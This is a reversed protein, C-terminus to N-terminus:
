RILTEQTQPNMFAVKRAGARLDSSLLMVDVGRLIDNTYIFGNYWYSSWANGGEPRYFGVEAAAASAGLLLRDVDVITTGGTYSASVLVKRGNTLPIFNFYHITCTGQEVRPIKYSGRALGTGVDLFWVRGRNDDPDTCRAQSGGGAEDGFAVLSGDWSFAASHWIEASAHDFRWLFEPAAPNSIDWMQSESLCSAAARRIELFVTIDHCARVGGVFSVSFLETNPDLQYRGVTAAIPDTLPVTVISIFGHPADCDAGSFMSPYSSVYVFVRGNAPDPVLTNTHSGCPTAVSTLLAPAAPNSIDFIRIGEWLDADAQSADCGRASPFADVSQFLLNGYVSVDGQAGPCHVSAVVLPAQPDSVDIVRFGDYNGAFALRGKFALDSQIVSGLRPVNSLLKVNQSHLEPGSSGDGPHKEHFQPIFSTETIDPTCGWTLASALFLAVRTNCSM